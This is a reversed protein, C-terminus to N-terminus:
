LQLKVTSMNCKMCVQCRMQQSTKELAQTEAESSMHHRAAGELSAKPLHQKIDAVQQQLQRVVVQFSTDTVSKM